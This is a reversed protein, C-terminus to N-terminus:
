VTLFKHLRLYRPSAEQWSPFEGECIAVGSTPFEKFPISPELEQIFQTLGPNHAVIMVCQHTDEVESLRDWLIKSNTHYLEDKYVISATSPVLPKMGELTQRTRKANSCLILSIGELHGQIKVRIADLEHMGAMTIARERDNFGFRELQAQAHRMLILRKM